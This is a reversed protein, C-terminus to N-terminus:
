ISLGNNLYEMKNNYILSLEIKTKTTLNNRILFDMFKNILINYKKAEDLLSDREQDTLEVAEKNVLGCKFIEENKM